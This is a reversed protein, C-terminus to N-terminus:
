FMFKVILGQCTVTLFSVDKSFFTGLEKQLQPMQNRELLQLEKYRKIVDM